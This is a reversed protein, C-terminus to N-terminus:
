KTAKANRLHRYYIAQGLGTEDKWKQVKASGKITSDNSIGIAISELRATKDERREELRLSGQLKALTVDQWSVGKAGARWQCYSPLAHEVYTRIDVASLVKGTVMQEVMWDAVERCETPTMSWIGKSWGNEAISLIRVAREEVSLDWVVPRFRSAVAALPGKSRSIDENSVIIIGGGFAVRMSEHATEYTIWREKARPSGCAARLISAAVDTKYLKECDEFLHVSDPFAMISLMLGKPTSYSTHHVWSKGLLGDLLNTVQHTKGLGGPGWLFMATTYGEGVARVQTQLILERKNIEKEIQERREKTFLQKRAM